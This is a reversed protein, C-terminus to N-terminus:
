QIKYVIEYLEPLPADGRLGYDVIKYQHLKTDVIITSTPQDTEGVRYDNKLKSWDTNQLLYLLKKMEETTLSYDSGKYAPDYFSKSCKSTGSVFDIEADINPFNDSEVGFASLHMEISNVSERYDPLRLFHRIQKISGTDAQGFSVSAIFLTVILTVLPKM